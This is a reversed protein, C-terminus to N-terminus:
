TKRSVSFTRRPQGSQKSNQVFTPSDPGGANLAPALVTQGGLASPGVTTTGRARPNLPSLARSPPRDASSTGTVRRRIAPRSTTGNVNTSTSSSTGASAKDNSPLFEAVHAFDTEGSSQRRAKEHRSQVSRFHSLLESWKIDERVLKSRTSSM